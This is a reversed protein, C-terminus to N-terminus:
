PMWVLELVGDREYMAKGYDTWRRDDAKRIYSQRISGDDEIVAEKLEWAVKRGTEALNRRGPGGLMFDLNWGHDEPLAHFTREMQNADFPIGHPYQAISYGNSIIYDDSTLFRQLFCDEGCTQIIKSGEYVKAYHWMGGKFHHLSLPSIGSEYFGSPDGTVDLQHLEPMM